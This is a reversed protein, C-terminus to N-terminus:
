YKNHEVFNFDQLYKSPVENTQSLSLIRSKFLEKVAGIAKDRSTSEVTVGDLDKITAITKNPSNKIVVIVYKGM